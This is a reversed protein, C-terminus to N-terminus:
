FGFYAAAAFDLCPFRSLNDRLWRKFNAWSNEIPNLDPSYPPLFLLYIGYRSAIKYLYKKRHFSANDMIVLTNKPILALLEFEFWDEFFAATTSHEYCQVAIHKGGWLGGIINTRKYRKGHKVGHVRVGMKARGYERQYQRNVGSEDIFIVDRVNFIVVFLIL